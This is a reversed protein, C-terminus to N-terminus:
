ASCAYMLNEIVAEIFSAKRLIKAKVGLLLSAYVLSTTLVSAPWMHSRSSIACWDPSLSRSRGLGNRCQLFKPDSTFHACFGASCSPRTRNKIVSVPLSCVLWFYLFSIKHFVPIKVNLGAFGSNPNIKMFVMLVAEISCTKRRIKTM